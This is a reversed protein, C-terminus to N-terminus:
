FDTAPPCEADWERSSQLSSETDTQLAILLNPIKLTSYPWHQEDIRAQSYVFIQQSITGVALFIVSVDALMDVNQSEDLQLVM